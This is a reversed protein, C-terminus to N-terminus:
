HSAVFLACGASPGRSNNDGDVFTRSRIIRNMENFDKIFDDINERAEDVDREVSMQVATDSEGTLTFTLGDIANSVTNESREFTVGDITFRANLDEQPVVHTMGDTISELAGTADDGFQIRNDYGTELSQVSLQVNEGDIDFVNARVSDGFAESIAGAFSELIEQNTKDVMQGEDDEKTTEVSITETQDGITITMTGAGDAALTNDDGTILGSLAIDNRAMRDVQINYSSEDDVGAASDIRVVSEDSSEFSMPEFANNTPSGLEDLRSIFTSIASSVDGLATKRERHEEQQAELQLKQRSELQVLQQVFQEYPNSQQFINQISSTNM